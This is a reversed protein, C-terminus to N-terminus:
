INLSRKLTAKLEAVFENIKDVDWPVTTCHNTDFHTKKEDFKKKECIYLVPKGLGEAFGAEWYAGANDHTLDVIVFASDRIQVRLLNDIIGARSVDRLDVASYGLTAIAPKIHDRMLPDLIDDGFKLAVFGYDGSTQGKKEAEYKEWGALTLTVDQMNGASNMDPIEYGSVLNLNKLEYALGLAFDRSPSGVSASFNPPLESMTVGTSAVTDGIYRVINTAQQAPSPLQPDDAFLTDIGDTMLMDPFRGADNASRIRHSLLARRLFTMPHYNQDLTSILATRSVAYRGCVECEFETADRSQFPGSVCTYGDRCLCIACISSTMGM